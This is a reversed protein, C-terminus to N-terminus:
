HNAAAAPPMWGGLCVRGFAAGRRAARVDPRSTAPEIRHM